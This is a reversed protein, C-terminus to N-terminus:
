DDHEFSQVASYSRVPQYSRVAPKYTQVPRYSRVAPRYTQVPKYEPYQAQGEYTVDANYGYPGATYHVHQIRGDPLHVSYYGTKTQGDSDEQHSFQTDYDSVVYEFKYPRAEYYEPEQYTTVPATYTTPRQVRIVRIVDDDDAVALVVLAALLFM